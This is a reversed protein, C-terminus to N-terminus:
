RVDLFQPTTGSFETRESPVGCRKRSDRTSCVMASDTTIDYGKDIGRASHRYLHYQKMRRFLPFRSDSFHLAYHLWQEAVYSEVIGALLVPVTYVPFFASIPGALFFLALTDKLEGSIHKRDFPRLPHDWHLPDPRVQLFRLIVGNGPPFRRHLVFRHVLYEICTWILCGASFFAVTTWPHAAWFGIVDGHPNRVGHLPRDASLPSLPCDRSADSQLECPVNGRGTAAATFSTRKKVNVKATREQATRAFSEFSKTM